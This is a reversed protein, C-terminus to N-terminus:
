GRGRVGGGGGSMGGVGSWVAVLRYVGSWSHNEYSWDVPMPVM